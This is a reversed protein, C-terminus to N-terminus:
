GCGHEAERQQPSTMRCFTEFKLSRHNVFAAAGGFGKEVLWAETMGRLLDSIASNHKLIAQQPRGRRRTGTLCGSV